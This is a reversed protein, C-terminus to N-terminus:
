LCPIWEVETYLTWYNFEGRSEEINLLLISSLVHQM